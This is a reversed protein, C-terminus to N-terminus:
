HSNQILKTNKLIEKKIKLVANELNKQSRSVARLYQVAEDTLTAAKGKQGKVVLSADLQQEWFKIEGWVHRYSRGLYKAAEGISGQEQLSELLQVLPHAIRNNTPKDSFRYEISIYKM